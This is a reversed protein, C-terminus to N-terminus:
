SYLHKLIEDAQNMYKFLIAMTKRPNIFRGMMILQWLIWDFQQFQLKCHIIELMNQHPCASGFLKKFEEKHQENQYNTTLKPITEAIFSMDLYQRSSQYLMNLRSHVEEPTWEDLGDPCILMVNHYGSLVTHELEQMVAEKGSLLPIKRLFHYFINDTSIYNVPSLSTKSILIADSFAEHHSLLIEQIEPPYQCLKRATEEASPLPNWQYFPKRKDYPIENQLIEHMDQFLQDRFNNDERLRKALNLVQKYKKEQKQIDEDSCHKNISDFHIQVIQESASEPLPNVPLIEKNEIRLTLRSYIRSIIKQFAEISDINQYMGAYPALHWKTLHERLYYSCPQIEAYRFCAELQKQLIHYGAGDVSFRDDIIYKELIADVRSLIDGNQMIGFLYEDSDGLYNFHTSARKNKLKGDSDYLNNVDINVLANLIKYQMETSFKASCDKKLYDSVAKPSIGIAEALKKQSINSKKFSERFLELLKQNEIHHYTKFRAKQCIFDFSKKKFNQQQEEKELFTGQMYRGIMRKERGIASALEDYNIRLEELMDQLWKIFTKNEM